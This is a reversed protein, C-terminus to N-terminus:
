LFDRLNTKRKEFKELEALRELEREECLDCFIGQLCRCCLEGHGQRILHCQEKCKECKAYTGDPLKGYAM